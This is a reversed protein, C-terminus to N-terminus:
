PSAFLKENVVLIHYLTDCLHKLIVYPGLLPLDLKQARYHRRYVLDVINSSLELIRTEYDKQMEAAAKLHQRATSYCDTLTVTIVTRYKQLLKSMLKIITRIQVNNQYSM